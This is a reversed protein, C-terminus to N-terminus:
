LINDTILHFSLRGKAQTRGKTNVLNEIRSQAIYYPKIKLSASSKLNEIHEYLSIM